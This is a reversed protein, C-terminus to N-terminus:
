LSAKVMQKLTEFSQWDIPLSNSEKPANNIKQLLDGKTLGYFPLHEGPTTKLKDHHHITISPVYALDALIAGHYRQTIILQYSAFLALAKPLITEQLIKPKRTTMRNIIEAAAYDDNQRPDLSMSFFDVGWGQGLLDDLAQAAENKFFDWSVHKYHPAKWDPVTNINPLFLISNPVKLERWFSRPLAYVLDPIVITNPNIGLQREYNANTRIAVLKALPLLSQHSTHLNTESGVGIYFLPYRKIDDLPIKTKLEEGLFSGGGFFIADIGTLHQQAIHNTFVFEIEPFLHRFAEVFLDDGFNSHQYYGVVLVRM